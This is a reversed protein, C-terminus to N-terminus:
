VVGAQNSSGAPSPASRSVAHFETMATFQRSGIGGILIRGGEEIWAHARFGQQDRIVGVQLTSAIGHRRLLIQGAVAQTLCSARPVRRSAADIAWGIQDPRVGSRATAPLRQSGELVRQVIVRSPLLWLAMRVCIVLSLAHSFLVWEEAPLTRAHRVLSATRSLLKM